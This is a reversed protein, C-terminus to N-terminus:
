RCVGFGGELAEERAVDDGITLEVCADDSGATPEVGGDITLLLLVVGIVVGTVAAVAELGQGALKM